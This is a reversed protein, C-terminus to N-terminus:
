EKAPFVALEEDSQEWDAGWKTITEFNSVVTYSGLTAADFDKIRLLEDFIAIAQRNSDLKDYKSAYITLIFKYDLVLDYPSSLARITAARKKGPSRVYIIRAPDIHGLNTPFAKILKEVVPKLENSALVTAMTM